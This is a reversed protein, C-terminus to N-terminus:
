VDGGSGRAMSAVLKLDLDWEYDPFDGFNQDDAIRKFMQKEITGVTRNVIDKITTQYMKDQAQLTARNVQEGSGTGFPKPIGTGTVIEDGFHKFFDIMGEQETAELMDIDVHNPVAIESSSKAEVLTDRIEKIKQPTPEHNEDGVSAVRTPFLASHARDGLDKKLQYNREADDFVPEILGIPYFGEGVTYLKFHVVNERPIYIEHPGVSVEEPPEYVQEVMGFDNHIEQVYGYPNGFEDTAVKESGYDEQAYDVSKPDIMAVDVINGTDEDRILELFAEGYIMQYRFVSELIDDWHENGGVEGVEDLFSQYFSSNSGNLNRDRGMIVQTTKNISNFVTPVHRYVKELQKKPIRAGVDIDSSEKRSAPNGARAGNQLEKTESLVTSYSRM